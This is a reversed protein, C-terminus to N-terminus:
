TLVKTIQDKVSGSINFNDLEDITVFKFDTHETVAVKLQKTEAVFNIQVAYKTLDPKNIIYQFYGCLQFSNLELGTEERVERKVAQDLSEGFEVKGGPLEWLGPYSDEDDGRKLLLIKNNNKILCGVVVSWIQKNVM